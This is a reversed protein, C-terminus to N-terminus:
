KLKSVGVKDGCTRCFHTEIMIDNVKFWFHYAKHINEGCNDCIFTKYIPKAKINWGAVIKKLRVSITQPLKLNFNKKNVRKKRKVIKINSFRFDRECDNCFHVPTKYGGTSCWYHWARYLPKQCNACRFGRYEPIKKLNWTQVINLLIERSM